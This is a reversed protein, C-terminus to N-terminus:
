FKVCFEATKLAEQAPNNPARLAHPANKGCVPRSPFGQFAPKRLSKRGKTLTEAIFPLLFWFLIIGVPLFIPILCCGFIASMFVKGFFPSPEKTIFIYVLSVLFPLWLGIVVSQFFLDKSKRMYAGQLPIHKTYFFLHTM